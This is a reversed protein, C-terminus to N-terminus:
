RGAQLGRTLYVILVGALLTVMGVLVLFPGKNSSSKAAPKPGPKSGKLLSEVEDEEPKAPSRQRMDFTTTTTKGLLIAVNSSAGLVVILWVRDRRRAGSGTVFESDPIRRESNM